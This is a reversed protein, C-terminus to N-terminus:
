YCYLLNKLKKVCWKNTEILGVNAVDIARMTKVELADMIMLIVDKPYLHVYLITYYRNCGRNQLSPPLPSYFHTGGSSNLCRFRPKLVGSAIEVDNMTRIHSAIHREDAHSTPSLVLKMLWPRLPYGSDGLLWGESITGNM